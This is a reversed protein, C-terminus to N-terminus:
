VVEAALAPWSSRLGETLRAGEETLTIRRNSDMRGPLVIYKRKIMADMTNISWKFLGADQMYGPRGLNYAIWSVDGQQVRLLFKIQTDNLPKPVAM